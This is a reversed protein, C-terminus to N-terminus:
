KYFAPFSYLGNMVKFCEEMDRITGCRESPTLNRAISPANFQTVVVSRKMARLFVNILLKEDKHFMFCGKHCHGSTNLIPALYCIDVYEWCGQWYTGGTEEYFPCKFNYYVGSYDRTM